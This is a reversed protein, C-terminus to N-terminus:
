QMTGKPKMPLVNAADSEPIDAAVHEMEITFKSDLWDAFIQASRVIDAAADEEHSSAVALELARLRTTPKAAPMIREM